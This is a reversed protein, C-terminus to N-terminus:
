EGEDVADGVEVCVVEWEGELVADAVEDEVRVAVGELEGGGGRVGSHTGKVAISRPVLGAARTPSVEKTQATRDANELSADAGM